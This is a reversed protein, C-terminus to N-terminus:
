YSGNPESGARTGLAVWVNPDIDNNIAQVSGDAFM